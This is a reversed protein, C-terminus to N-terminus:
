QLICQALIRARASYICNTDPSKKRPTLCDIGRICNAQKARAGYPDIVSRCNLGGTRVQRQPATPAARGHGDHRRRLARATHRVADLPHVQRRCRPAGPRVAHREPRCRRLWPQGPPTRIETWPLHLPLRGDSPETPQATWDSPPAAIQWRLKHMGAPTVM